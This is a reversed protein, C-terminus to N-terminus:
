SGPLRSDLILRTPNLGGLGIAGSIVVGAGGGRRYQVTRSGRTPSPGRRNGLIVDKVVVSDQVSHEGSKRHLSIVFEPVAPLGFRVLCLAWDSETPTDHWRYFWSVIRRERESTSRSVVFLDYPVVAGPLSIPACSQALPDWHVTLMASAHKAVYVYGDHLSALLDLLRLTSRARIHPRRAAAIALAAILAVIGVYFWMAPQTPRM